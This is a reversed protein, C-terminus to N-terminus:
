FSFSVTYKKQEGTSNYVFITIYPQSPTNSKTDINPSFWLKEMKYTPNNLITSLKYTM